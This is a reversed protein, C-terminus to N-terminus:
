PKQYLTPTWLSICNATIWPCHIHTCIYPTHRDHKPLQLKWEIILWLSAAINEVKSILLNGSSCAPAEPSASSSCSCTFDLLSSVDQGLLTAVITAVYLIDHCSIENFIHHYVTHPIDVMQMETLNNIGESHLLSANCKLSYVVHNVHGQDFDIHGLQVCGLSLPTNIFWSCKKASKCHLTSVVMNHSFKQHANLQAM